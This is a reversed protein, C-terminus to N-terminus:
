SFMMVLMKTVRFILVKLNQSLIGPMMFIVKFQSSVYTSQIREFKIMEMVLDSSHSKIIM